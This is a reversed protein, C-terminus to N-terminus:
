RTPALLLAAKIRMRNSTSTSRAEAPEKVRPRSPRFKPTLRALSSYTGTGVVAGSSDTIVAGVYPNPTALGYGARALDLARHLLHDDANAPM